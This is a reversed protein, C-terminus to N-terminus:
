AGLEFTAATMAAFEVEDRFKPIIRYRGAQDRYTINNMLCWLDDMDAEVGLAEVRPAIFEVTMDYQNTWYRRPATATTKM